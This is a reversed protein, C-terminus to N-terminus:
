RTLPPWSWRISLAQGTPRVGVFPVPDFDVQVPFVFGADSYLGPVWHFKLVITGDHAPAVDRLEIRNPQVRVRASGRLTWGATRRVRFVHYLGCRTVEEYRDHDIRLVSVVPPSWAVILAVNYREVCEALARPTLELINQELLKGDGFQTYNTRLHTYLYPGGIVQHSTFVPILAAINLGFSADPVQLQGLIERRELEEFLVRGEEPPFRRLVAFLEVIPRPLSTALRPATLAGQQFWFSVGILGAAVSLSACNVAGRWGRSTTQGLLTCLSVLLVAYLPQTYRGPQLWAFLPVAALPYGLLYLLLAGIGLGWWTAGGVRRASTLIAAAGALFLASETPFRATVLEVMRGLFNPNLFGAALSACTERLGLTPVVWPSWCLFVVAPVLWFAAHAAPRLTRTRSLYAPVLLAGSTIATSPHGVQAFSLCVVGMLWLTWKTRLASSQELWRILCSAGWVAMATTLVFAVMGWQVYTAPFATWFWTAALAYCALTRPFSATLTLVALALLLPVLWAAVAVYLRYALASGGTLWGILEPFTSSTPFWLSKGYGAMFFPDYGVADPRGMQAALWGYYYHFTHDHNLFPLNPDGSFPPYAALVIWAHAVGLGVLGSTSLLAVLIRIRVPRM